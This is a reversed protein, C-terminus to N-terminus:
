ITPVAATKWTIDLPEGVPVKLGAVKLVGAAATVAGADKVGNVSVTPTNTPMGTPFLGLIHVAEIYLEGAAEGTNSKITSTLTGSTGDANASATFWVQM